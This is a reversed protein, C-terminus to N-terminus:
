ARDSSESRDPRAGPLSPRIMKAMGKSCSKVGVALRKVLDSRGREDLVASLRTKTNEFSRLPVLALCGTSM